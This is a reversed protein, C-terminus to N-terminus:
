CWCTGKRMGETWKTLGVKSLFHIEREKVEKEKGRLHFTKETFVIPKGLRHHSVENLHEMM